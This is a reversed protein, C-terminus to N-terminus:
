LTVLSFFILCFHKSFICKTCHFHSISLSLLQNLSLFRESGHTWVKKTKIGIAFKFCSWRELSEWSCWLCFVELSQRWILGPCCSFFTLAFGKSWNLMLLFIATQKHDHWNSQKGKWNRKNKRQLFEHLEALNLRLRLEIEPPWNLDESTKM